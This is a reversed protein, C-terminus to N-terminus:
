YGERPQYADAQVTENLKEIAFKYRSSRALEEDNSATSVPGIFNYHLRFPATRFLLTEPTGTVLNGPEIAFPRDLVLVPIKINYRKVDEMVRAILHERIQGADTTQVGEVGNKELDPELTLYMPVGLRSAEEYFRELAPLEEICPKCTPSYFNLVVAPARLSALQVQKGDATWGSLQDVGLNSRQKPSCTALLALSLLLLLVAIRKMSTISFLFRRLPLSFAGVGTV